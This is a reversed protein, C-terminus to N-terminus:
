HEDGLIKREAQVSPILRATLTELNKMCLISGILKVIHTSTSFIAAYVLHRLGYAPKTAM